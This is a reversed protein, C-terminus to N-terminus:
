KKRYFIKKFNKVEISNSKDTETIAELNQNTNNM